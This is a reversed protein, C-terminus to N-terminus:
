TEESESSSLTYYEKTAFQPFIGSRLRYTRSALRPEDLEMDDYKACLYKTMAVARELDNTHLNFTNGRIDLVSAELTSVVFIQPKYLNNHHKRREISYYGFLVRLPHRHSFTSVFSWSGDRYSTFSVDTSITAIEAVAKPAKLLLEEYTSIGELQEIDIEHISSNGYLQGM